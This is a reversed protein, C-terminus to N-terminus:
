YYYRHAPKEYSGYSSYSDYYEPEYGYSSYPRKYSSYSDYSGQLLFITSFSFIM